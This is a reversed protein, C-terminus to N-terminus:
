QPPLPVAAERCIFPRRNGCAIDDWKADNQRFHGCHEAGDLSPQDPAWNTYSLPAGSSWYFDGDGNGIDSLGFYWVSERVLQAAAYLADNQSQSDIHALDHGKRTCWMLAQEWSMNLDCLYFTVGGITAQPCPCEIADDVNDSCNNDVGDCVETADPHVARDGDNCDNYCRGFGDDDDDREFGDEGICDLQAGLQEQREVLWTKMAERKTDMSRNSFKKRPDERAADDIFAGIRDIDGALDLEDFLALARYTRDVYDPLCRQNRLCRRTLYGLQDFPETRERFTQDIGWPIFSWLNRSPDHYVRYNHAIWYGDWHGIAAEVASFALFEETDLLTDEGYFVREADGHVFATFEALDEREEDSGEDQEFKWVHSPHLDDGYDGEYLGGTPDDFHQALFVDDITELNLYLGYLEDNVFVRAYGVRPAPVGAARFVQYGLWERVMTPDQQMNNLTMAELGLFRQEDDFRDFKLKFAPKEDFLQLTASGKLRVGVNRLTVRGYRFTGAVYEKPEQELRAIAGPELYIYLDPLFRESYLEDATRALPVERPRRLDGCAAAFAAAIAIWTSTRGLAM